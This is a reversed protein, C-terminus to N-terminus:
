KFKNAQLRALLKSTCDADQNEKLVVQHNKRGNTQPQKNSSSRQGLGKIECSVKIALFREM